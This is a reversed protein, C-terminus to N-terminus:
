STLKEAFELVVGNPDEALIVRVGLLPLDTIDLVLNTGAGVLRDRMSPLESTEFALHRFGVCAEDKQARDPLDNENRFLEITGGEPLTAYTLSFGMKMDVPDSLPLGLLDGYFWLTKDWDKVNIAFHAFGHIKGM